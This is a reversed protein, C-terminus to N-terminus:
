LLFKLFSNISGVLLVLLVLHLVHHLLEKLAMIVSLTRMIDLTLMEGPDTRSGGHVPSPPSPVQYIGGSSYFEGRIDRM